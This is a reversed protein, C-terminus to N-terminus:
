NYIRLMSYIDECFFFFFCAIYIYIPTTRGAMNYVMQTVAEIQSPFFSQPSGKRKQLASWNPDAVCRCAHSIYPSLLFFLLSTLVHMCIHPPCTYAHVFNWFLFITTEFNLMSILIRNCWQVQKFLLKLYSRMGSYKLSINKQSSFHM